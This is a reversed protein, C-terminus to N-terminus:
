LGRPFCNRCRGLSGDQVPNVTGQLKCKMLIVIPKQIEGLPFISLITVLIKVLNWGIKRYVDSHTRHLKFIIYNFFPYL